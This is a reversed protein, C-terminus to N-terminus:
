PQNGQKFKHENETSFASKLIEMSDLLNRRQGETLHAFRKALFLRTHHFASDISLKGKPLVSLNVRRRDGADKQRKVLRRQVLHEVLKSTAPAELGIHEAVENLACGPSRNIFLLSRFEPLSLAPDRQSRFEKRIVRMVMPIVELAAEAVSRNKGPM